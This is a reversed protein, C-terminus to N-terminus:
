KKNKRMNREKRLIRNIERFSNKLRSSELYDGLKELLYKALIIGAFGCSVLVCMLFITMESEENKAYEFNALRGQM